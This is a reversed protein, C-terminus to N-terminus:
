AKVEESWSAVECYAGLRQVHVGYEAEFKKQVQEEDARPAGSAMGDFNVHMFFTNCPAESTQLLSLRTVRGIRTPGKHVAPFYEDRMFEVFSEAVMRQPITVQYIIIYTSM